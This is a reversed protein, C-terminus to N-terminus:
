TPRLLTDVFFWCAHSASLSVRDPDKSSAPHGESLYDFVLDTRGDSIRDLM